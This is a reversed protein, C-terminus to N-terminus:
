RKQRQGFSHTAQVALQAPVRAQPSSTLRLKLRATISLHLFRVNNMVQAWFRSFNWVVTCLISGINEAGQLV